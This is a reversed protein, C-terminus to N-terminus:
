RRTGHPRSSTQPSPETLRDLSRRSVPRRLDVAERRDGAIVYAIWTLGGAVAALVLIALATM